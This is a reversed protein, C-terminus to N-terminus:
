NVICIPDVTLLKKRAFDLTLTFFQRDFNKVGLVAGISTVGTAGGLATLM